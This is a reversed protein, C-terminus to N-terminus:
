YRYIAFENPTVPPEVVFIGILDLHADGVLVVVMLVIMVVLALLLQDLM